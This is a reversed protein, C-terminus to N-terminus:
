SRWGPFPALRNEFSFILLPTPLCSFLSSFFMLPSVYSAFLCVIYAGFDLFSDVACYEVFGGRLFLANLLSILILIHQTGTPRGLFPSCEVDPYYFTVGDGMICESEVRSPRWEDGCMKQLLLGAGVYRKWRSVV